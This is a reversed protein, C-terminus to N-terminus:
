LLYDKRKLNCIRVQHSPFSVVLSPWFCSCLCYLEPTVCVRGSATYSGPLDRLAWCLYISGHWHLRMCVSGLIFSVCFINYVDFVGQWLHFIMLSCVNGWIIAWQWRFVLLRRDILRKTLSVYLPARHHAISYRPAWISYKGLPGRRDTDGVAGNNYTDQARGVTMNYVTGASGSKQFM